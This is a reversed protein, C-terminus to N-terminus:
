ALPRALAGSGEANATQEIEEVDQSILLFPM